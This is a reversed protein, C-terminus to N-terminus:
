NPLDAIRGEIWAGDDTLTELEARAAAKTQTSGAVVNPAEGDAPQCSAELRIGNPDFFYVSFVGPLVEIPGIIDIAQAALRAQLAEFPAPLMTFSVHQMAALADRDGQQKAGKPMEFFALLSDNGMDFFYHRLNEFPPNGRNGPGVGVGPPVKLAHVLNMGIVDVYFDITMKMDDTNLALHHVGLTTPEISSPM